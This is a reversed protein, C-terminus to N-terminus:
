SKYECQKTREGDLYNHERLWDFGNKTIHIHATKWEPGWLEIYGQEWLWAIDAQIDYSQDLPDPATSSLSRIQNLLLIRNREQNSM